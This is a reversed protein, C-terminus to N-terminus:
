RAQYWSSWVGSSSELETDNATRLISIAEGRPKKLGWSLKSPTLPLSSPSLHSSVSWVLQPSLNRTPEGSLVAQLSLHLACDSSDNCLCIRPCKGHSSPHKGCSVTWSQVYSRHVFLLPLSSRSCVDIDSALSTDRTPLCDTGGRPLPHTRLKPREHIKLSRVWGSGRPPVSEM